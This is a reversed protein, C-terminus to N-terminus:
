PLKAGRTKLMALTREDPKGAYYKELARQFVSNEDSIYAFLTLCSQLKLDDPNGMVEIPNNGNLSLLAETIENIRTGLVPHALYERAEAECSIGYYQSMSSYGLGKLQPFIYWIWHSQKRGARIEDLAPKYGRRQAELFRELNYKDAM